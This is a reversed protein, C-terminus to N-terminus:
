DDFDGSFPDRDVSLHGNRKRGNEKAKRANAQDETEIGLDIGYTDSMHKILAKIVRPAVAGDKSPARVASQEIAALEANTIVIRDSM